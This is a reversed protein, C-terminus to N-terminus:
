KEHTAANLAIGITNILSPRIIAGHFFEDFPEIRNNSPTGLESSVQSDLRGDDRFPDRALSGDRDNVPSGNFCECLACNGPAIEEWIRVKSDPGFQGIWGSRLFPLPSSIDFGILGSDTCEFATTVTAQRDCPEVACDCARRPGTDAISSDTHDSSISSRCAMEIASRCAFVGHTCGNGAGCCGFRSTTSARAYITRRADHTGREISKPKHSRWQGHDPASAKEGGAAVLGLVVCDGTATVRGSEACAPLDTSSTTSTRRTNKNM